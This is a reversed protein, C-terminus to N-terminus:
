EFGWQATLANYKEALEKSKAFDGFAENYESLLRKQSEIFVGFESANKNRNNIWFSANRAIGAPDCLLIAQEVTVGRLKEARIKEAWSKQRKSGALAKGGFFKAANRATQTDPIM